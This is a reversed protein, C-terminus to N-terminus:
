ILLHRPVRNVLPEGAALRRVQDGVLAFARGPSAASDGGVHPSILVAPHRWLPHDAPLPEPDTVDLAARLRGSAVEALLAATVLTKGRGANVVLAGDPLRALRRADLFGVTEASLPLLDVLIEARALLRDLEDIGHVGDRATRAVGEVRAGFGALRESLAHGISGFGLIVVRRGTLEGPVFASWDARAQADRSRLIGREFALIAAVIWEAVPADYVGRANCVVVGDPVRGRLWDVGASLTQIVPPRPAGAIAALLPERLWGIPVVMDMAALDPLASEPSVGPDEPVLVVRVSAPLEGMAAREPLDPLCVTLELPGTVPPTPV